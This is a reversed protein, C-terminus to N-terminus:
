EATFDPRNLNLFKSTKARTDYEQSTPSIQPGRTTTSKTMIDDRMREM